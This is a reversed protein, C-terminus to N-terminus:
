GGRGAVCELLADGCGDVARGPTSIDDRKYPEKAFSDQLKLSCVNDISTHFFVVNVCVCMCVCGDVARGPIRLFFFILQWTSLWQM